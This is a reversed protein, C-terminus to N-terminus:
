KRLRHMVVGTVVALGVGAVLLGANQGVVGLVQSLSRRKAALERQQLEQVAALERDRQAIRQQEVQAQKRAIKENTEANYVSAGFQAGAGLIGTIVAAIGAGGLGQRFEGAAIVGM